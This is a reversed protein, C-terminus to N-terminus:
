IINSQGDSSGIYKDMDGIIFIPTVLRSAVNLFLVSGTQIAAAYGSSVAAVEKGYLRAGTAFSRWTGTLGEEIAMGVSGIRSTVDQALQKTGAATAAHFDRFWPSRNAAKLSAAFGAVGGATTAWINGLTGKKLWPIGTQDATISAGGGGIIAGPGGGLMTAAFGADAIFFSTTLFRHSLNAQRGDIWGQHEATQIGGLIATIAAFGGFRELTVARRNFRLEEDGAFPDVYEGEATEAAPTKGEKAVSAPPRPESPPKPPNTSRGRTYVKLLNDIKNENLRWGDPKFFLRRIAPSMRAISGAIGECVIRKDAETLSDFSPYGALNARITLADTKGAQILVLREHLLDPPLEGSPMEAPRSGNAPKEFLTRFRVVLEAFPMASVERYVREAMADSEASADRQAIRAIQRAIAAPNLPKNQRDRANVNEAATTIQHELVEAATRQQHVKGGLEDLMADTAGGEAVREFVAMGKMGDELFALRALVAEVYQADPTQFSNRIEPENNWVEALARRILLRELDSFTQLAPHNAVERDFFQPTVEVDVVLNGSDTRRMVVTDAFPEWESGGLLSKRLPASVPARIIKEEVAEILDAVTLRASVDETLSTGTKRRIAELIISKALSLPTRTIDARWVEQVALEVAAHVAERSLDVRPFKELQWDILNAAVASPNVVMSDGLPIEMTPQEEPPMSATEDEVILAPRPRVPEVVFRSEDRIPPPIKTPRRALRLLGFAATLIGAAVGAVTLEKRNSRAWQLFLALPSDTKAPPSESEFQPSSSRAPHLNIVAVDPERSAPRSAGAEPNATKKRSKRGNKKKEGGDPKKQVEPESEPQPPPLTSKFYDAEAEILAAIGTFPRGHTTELPSSKLVDIVPLLEQQGRSEIQQRIAETNRWVFGSLLEQCDEAYIDHQQATKDCLLDIADGTKDLVHQRCDAQAEEPVSQCAAQIRSRIVPSIEAGSLM